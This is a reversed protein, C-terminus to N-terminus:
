PVSVKWLGSLMDTVWLSGNALMVGWTYTNANGGVKLRAIERTALDGTLTGRVDLGVIGANYYAAYLIGRQEDVWFNHTGAGGLHYSAVEVPATMDSLDVVHIDGSSASGVTGPGEQGVFLYRKSSDAAHYWWSNHVCNCTLGDASTTIGGILQPSAPSGGLRGDGVDYIRLGADWDAVFALGDRVYTDHIGYSAPQSIAAVQVIPDASDPQIRYVMLAPAGGSHPDRAAFVYRQGGIDAFTGTHLGYAGIVESGLLAPHAPDALSYIYLGAGSGYEATALLLTGDASVENDSIVLSNLVKLSDVLVVGASVDWVKTVNGTDTRLGWTGTYAYNGRVWLDSSYWGTANMGGGAITFSGQATAHFRATDPIGNVTASVFQGGVPAGLTWAVTAIGAADTATSDAGAAGDASDVTWRVFTGAVPAGGSTVVRVKLVAPLAAGPLACEDQGALIRLRGTTDAGARGDCPVLNPGTPGGQSDGSCAAMLAVVV